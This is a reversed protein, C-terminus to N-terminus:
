CIKPGILLAFLDEKRLRYEKGFRFHGVKCEKLQKQLTRKNVKLYKAADKVTLLHQYTLPEKHMLLKKRLGWSHIGLWKFQKLETDIMRVVDYEAPLVLPPVNRLVGFLASIKTSPYLTQLLKYAAVYGMSNVLARLGVMLLDKGLVGTQQLILLQYEPAYCTPPIFKVSEYIADWYKTIINKARNESYVDKFTLKTTKFNRDFSSKKNLRVEIRLINKLDPRKFLWILKHLEKLKKSYSLIEKYKDYFCIERTKNHFTLQRGNRFSVKQVDLHEKKPKGAALRELVLEVPVGSCIINKGYHVQEVKATYIANIDVKIGMTKLKTQLTKCVTQFQTDTVELLNNGYILKPVSFKVFLCYCANYGYFNHIEVQPYYDKLQQKDSPNNWKHWNSGTFNEVDSNNFMFPNEVEWAPHNWPDSFDSMMKDIKLAVTDIM